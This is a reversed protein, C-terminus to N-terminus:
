KIFEYLWILLGFLGFPISMFISCNYISVSIGFFALGIFINIFPFDLTKSNWIMIFIFFLIIGIFGIVYSISENLPCSDDIIGFGFNDDYQPVNIIQTGSQCNLEGISEFKIKNNKNNEDFKLNIKWTTENWRLVNTKINMNNNLDFWTKSKSDVIWANYKNSPFYYSNSSVTYEFEVENNKNINKEYRIVDFIIRDDIVSYNFTLNESLSKLVHVNDNIQFEIKNKKPRVYWKQKLKENTHGDCYKYLCTVTSNLISSNMYSYNALNLGDIYKNIGNDCSLNFSYFNEDTCTINWTYNTGSLVQSSELGTCYPQIIDTVNFLKSIKTENGATDNAWLTLNYPNAEFDDFLLYSM